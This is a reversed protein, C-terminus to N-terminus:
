ICVCCFVFFLFSVIKHWYIQFNLYFIYNGVFYTKRSTVLTFSKWNEEFFNFRHNLSRSLFTSLVFFSMTGLLNVAKWSILSCIMEVKYFEQLYYFHPFMEWSLKHSQHTYSSVLVLYLCHFFPCNSAM